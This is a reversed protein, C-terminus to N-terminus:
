SPDMYAHILGRRGGKEGFFDDKAVAVGAEAMFRADACELFKGAENTLVIPQDGAQVDVHFAIEVRAFVALEGGLTLELEVAGGEEGADGAVIRQTRDLKEELFEVALQAPPGARLFGAQGDDGETSM